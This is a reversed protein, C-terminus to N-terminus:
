RFVRPKHPFRGPIEVRVASDFWTRGLPGRIMVPVAGAVCSVALHHLPSRNPNVPSCPTRPALRPAGAGCLLSTRFSPNSGEHTAGGSGLDPADALEAVKAAGTGVPRHQWPGPFRDM